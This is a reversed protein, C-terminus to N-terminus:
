GFLELLEAELIMPTTVTDGVIRRPDLREQIDDLTTSVRDRAVEVAAAAEDVPNSAM